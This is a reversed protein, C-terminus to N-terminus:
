GLGGGGVGDRFFYDEVSVDAVVNVVGESDGESEAAGFELDEADGGRKTVGLGAGLKEVTEEGFDAARVDRYSDADGRRRFAGKGLAAVGFGAMEGLRRVGVGDGEEEVL